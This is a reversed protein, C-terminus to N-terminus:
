REDQLEGEEAQETLSTFLQTIQKLQTRTLKQGNLVRVAKVLEPNETLLNSVDPPPVKRITMYLRDMQDRMTGEPQLADIIKQYIEQTPANVGDEIYKMNSRSLGVQQALRSQSLNEGRCKVICAGLREQARKKKKDNTKKKPM